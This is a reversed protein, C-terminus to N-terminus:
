AAVSKGPRRGKRRDPFSIMREYMARNRGAEKAEYLLRDARVYLEDFTANKQASRPLEVLGMSATVLQDLGPVEAAVRTPIAKRQREARARTDKGRLLLVFEEGGLRMAMMDRDPELAKAVACLVEDGVSHGHTDNVKKFRDLDILAFTDFGLERLEAFRPEIARRNMMGTLHDQESLAESMRAESLARDRERRISMFRDIVGLATAACEVVLGVHFIPNADNQPLEPVFYSIVRVLGVLFLPSWGALQYWAARSGRRLASIIVTAFLPLMLACGLYFLDSSHRGLSDFGAAHVMTIFACWVAGLVLMKRLRPSLKDSEIFNAAFMCAAVMMGGFSLVNIVRMQEMSLDIFATHFGATLTIQLLACSSLVIHWLLFPERLIRYFALNFALPMMIMGCLAALLLLLNREQPANGPLEDRLDLHDLAIRQTAGDVAVYVFQTQENVEPLVASFGLDPLGPQLENFRYDLQRQGGDRDVALITIHDFKASRGILFHPLAAPSANASQELEIRRINREDSLASPTGSCDWRPDSAVIQALSQGVSASVSCQAVPGAVAPVSFAACVLALLLALAKSISERRM